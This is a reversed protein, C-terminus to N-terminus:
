FGSEELCLQFFGVFPRGKNNFLGGFAAPTKTPVTPTSGCAWTFAAAACSAMLVQPGRM